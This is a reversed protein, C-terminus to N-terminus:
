FFFIDKKKMNRSEVTKKLVKPPLIPGFLSFSGKRFCLIRSEGPRERNDLFMRQSFPFMHARFGFDDDVRIGADVVGDGQEHGHGMRFQFYQTDRRDVAVDADFLGFM